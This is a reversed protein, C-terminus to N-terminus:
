KEARVKLSDGLHSLRLVENIASKLARRSSNRTLAENLQYSSEVRDFNKACEQADDASATMTAESTSRGRRRWVQLIEFPNTGQAIVHPRRFGAGHLMRRMGELSFLQLHEPPEVVSWQLGLARASLGKGHPTTAWFLGGPRLIRAAERILAQPDPLHELVEIATVVDFYADPYHAAALEGHFVKFGQKRVHEVATQSVEIGEAEWGARRAALLFSGAGFGVEMLRNTQRYANFGAVIEDLRRNIFEPIALTKPNYYNDYDQADQPRPLHPTYLTRCNKCYLLQFGNKEGQKIGKDLGCAPCGRYAEMATEIHEM